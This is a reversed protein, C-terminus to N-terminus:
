ETLLRNGLEFKWCCSVPRDFCLMPHFKLWVPYLFDCIKNFHCVFNQLLCSKDVPYVFYPIVKKPIPLVVPLLQLVGVVVAIKVRFCEDTMVAVAMSAM